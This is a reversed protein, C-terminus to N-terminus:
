AFKERKLESVLWKLIGPLTFNLLDQRFYCLGETLANRDIVGATCAALSQKVLTAGIMLLVRPNTSSRIALGRHTVQLFMSLLM